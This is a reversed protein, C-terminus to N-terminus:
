VQGASQCPRKALKAGIALEKFLSTTFAHVGNQHLTEAEATKSRAKGNLVPLDVEIEEHTIQGPRLEVYRRASAEKSLELESAIGL